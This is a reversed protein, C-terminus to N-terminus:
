TLMWGVLGMQMFVVTIVLFSMGNVYGFWYTSVEPALYLAFNVLCGVSMGQLAGFSLLIFGRKQLNSEDVDSSLWFICAIGALSTFLGGIGTYLNVVVGLVGALMTLCLAIYVKVLHAQAKASIDTFDLIGTYSRNGGFATSM